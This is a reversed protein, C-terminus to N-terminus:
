AALTVAEPGASAGGGVIVALDSNKSRAGEEAEAEAVQPASSSSDAVDLALDLEFDFIQEMMEEEELLSSSGTSSSPSGISSTTSSLAYSSLPGAAISASDLSLPLPLPLIDDGATATTPVGVHDQQVPMSAMGMSSDLLHQFFFDGSGDDDATTTTAASATAPALGTVSSVNPLLPTTIAAGQQHDVGPAVVGAAGFSALFTQLPDDDDVVAPAVAAVGSLGLSTGNFTSSSM